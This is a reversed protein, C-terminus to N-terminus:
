KLHEDRMGIGTGFQDVQIRLTGSWKGESDNLTGSPKAGEGHIKLIGPRGVARFEAKSKAEEVKWTTANAGPVWAFASFLVSAALRAGPNRKDSKNNHKLKNGMSVRTKDPYLGIRKVVGTGSPFAGSISFTVLSASLIQM